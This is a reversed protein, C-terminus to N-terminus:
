GSRREDPAGKYVAIAGPEPCAYFCLGDARCGDGAYVIPHYGQHNLAEAFSLCGVPCALICMGCGKCEEQRIVVFGRTGPESM